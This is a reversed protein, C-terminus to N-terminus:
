NVPQDSVILEHCERICADCIRANESEVMQQVDHPGKGCFSCTLDDNM